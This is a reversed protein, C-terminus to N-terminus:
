FSTLMKEEFQAAQQDFDRDGLQNKLAQTDRELSDLTLTNNDLEYVQKLSKLYFSMVILANSDGEKAAQKIKALKRYIKNHVQKLQWVYYIDQLFEHRKIQNLLMSMFLLALVVGLVNYKFNSQTEPDVIPEAFLDILITGFLVSLLAFAIVFVAIVKNLRQRYLSKNVPKLQM